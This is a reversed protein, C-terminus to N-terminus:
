PEDELEARTAKSAAIDDFRKFARETPSSPSLIEDVRKLNKLAEDDGDMARRILDIIVGLLKAGAEAIAIGTGLPNDGLSTLPNSM